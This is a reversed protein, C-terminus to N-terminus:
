FPTNLDLPMLVMNTSTHIHISPANLETQIIRLPSGLSVWRWFKAYWSSKLLCERPLHLTFTPLFPHCPPLTRPKPCLFYRTHLYCLAQGRWPILLCERSPTSILFLFSLQTQLLLYPCVSRSGFHKWERREGAFALFMVIVKDM